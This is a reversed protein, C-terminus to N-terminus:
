YTRQRSEHEYDPARFWVLLGLALSNCDARMVAFGKLAHVAAGYPVVPARLRVTTRHLRPTHSSRRSTAPPRATLEATTQRLDPSPAPVAAPAEVTIEAAPVMAAGLLLGGSLLALSGAAALVRKMTM